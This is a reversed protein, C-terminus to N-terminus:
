KKYPPFDDLMENVKIIAMRWGIVLGISVGAAFGMATYLWTM